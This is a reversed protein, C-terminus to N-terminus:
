EIILEIKLEVKEINQEHLEDFKNYLKIKGTQVIIKIKSLAELEYLLNVGERYFVECQDYRICYKKDDLEPLYFLRNEGKVYYKLVVKEVLNDTGELYKEVKVKPFSVRSLVQNKKSIDAELIGAINKATVDFNSTM